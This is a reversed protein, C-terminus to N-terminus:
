ESRLVEAPRVKSIFYSALASGILAIMIAAGLGYLIISYGIQAHVDKIDGVTVNSPGAVQTAGSGTNTPPVPMWSPLSSSISSSSDSVLTSTVPSGGIIGVGLGIVAALVTLTLAESMFQLMIRGNSFGIAKLVGIERKRERVIMIMTLLIIVASAAVAGILSYLSVNKVTNLPQLADNAQTVNSTVDASSGLTEKIAATTSDLNILSDVTATASTVDGGRGSLNQETALPVIITENGGQTDSTFLAAVTLTKGYATFTSGVTLHNTKAMSTSIMAVDADSNSRFAKGSTINLTSTNIVSPNTPENTGVIPIPLSFNSPLTPAQSNGISKIFVSGGSCTTGNSGSSCNLKDPSKLSTTANGNSSSGGINDGNAGTPTSTTGNTQLHDSLQEEVDTVHPLSKVKKLESTTLANNVSSGPTYGSPEITVTNGISSLTAQIQNQVAQHAILMILSLGISLGLILVISLTRTANRFANRIGRTIVNM